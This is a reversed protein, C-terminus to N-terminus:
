KLSFRKEFPTRDNNYSHPRIQNYWDYAFESVAHDLASVTDFHYQYILEAKLTNYYREMPANDYPCGAHSMSQQIGLGHCFPIFRLSTFQSGQDSHLILGKPDCNTAQIAKKVAAVALETTIWRDNVSAVVSRDYLDIVTCNYRLTGNTLYLYTFDTCWVQNQKEAVFNQQLLDPFM